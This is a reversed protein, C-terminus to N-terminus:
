PAVLKKCRSKGGAIACELVPVGTVTYETLLWDASNGVRDLTAFGYDGRAAYDEVEAGAWAQFGPPLAQPPKGENASGSNGLVLSAPQAGKFSISEFVHVHGHLALSIGDPFLRQPFQASFVSQLGENGGPKAKKGEKVPAVALLPHHSMFFSNPKQLALQGVAQLQASYKQFAPDTSAFAKGATKSSDFILLQTDATLPVAYPTSYDADADRAPDNCSRAESWPQSDIFRFWGQGARACTEHNGRVFVWPAAALLPAAPNFLDAQWADYGYGWPSNACGANSTPCPSERYHIDGIHLVLDPKKLAASAAVQAFPWRAADNCPQFANESGKMRCGTDAIIVIRRIEQRPAPVDVGAVRARLVGAPWTAECSLVNFVAAKGDSQAGGDRMPVTAAAARMLMPQISAGDWEIVPCVSARTLARVVASQGQAQVTFVSDPALVRAANPVDTCATLLLLAAFGTCFIKSSTQTFM